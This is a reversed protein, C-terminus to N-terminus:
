KGQSRSLFSCFSFAAFWWRVKKNLLKKGTDIVLQKLSKEDMEVPLNHLSM